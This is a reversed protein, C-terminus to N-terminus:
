QVVINFKEAEEQMQAMLTDNLWEYIEKNSM